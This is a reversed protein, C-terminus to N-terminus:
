TEQELERMAKPAGVRWALRITAAIMAGSGPFKSDFEITYQVRTGGDADTFAIRSRHNRVPGGAHMQYEILEGPEFATITETFKFAGARVTRTAGVGDPHAPDSGATQRKFRGGWLRQLRDPNGFYAFVRSRSAPFIEDFSLTQDAM